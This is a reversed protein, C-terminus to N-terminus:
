SRASCACCLRLFGSLVPTVASALLCTVLMLAIGRSGCSTRISAWIHALRSSRSKLAGFSHVSACATHDALRALGRESGTSRHSHVLGIMMWHLGPAAAPRKRRGRFGCHRRPPGRHPRCAESVPPGEACVSCGVLPHTRLTADGCNRENIRPRRNPQHQIHFAKCRRGYSGRWVWVPLPWLGM